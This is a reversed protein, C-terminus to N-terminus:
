IKKHFESGSMVSKLCTRSQKIYKTQLYNVLSYIKSIKFIVQLTSAGIWKILRIPSFVYIVREILDGKTYQTICGYFFM